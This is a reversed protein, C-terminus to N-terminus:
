IFVLQKKGECRTKRPHPLNDVIKVEEPFTSSSIFKNRCNTIPVLKSKLLKLKRPSIDWNSSKNCDIYNIYELM